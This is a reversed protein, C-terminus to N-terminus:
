NRAVRREGAYAGGAAAAAGSRTPAGRQPAAKGAATGYGGSTGPRRAAVKDAGTQERNTSTNEKEAPSAGARAPGRIGPKAVGTKAWAPVPRGERAKVPDYDNVGVGNHEWM